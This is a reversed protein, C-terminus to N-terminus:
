GSWVFLRVAFLCALLRDTSVRGIFVGVDLSMSCWSCCLDQFGKVSLDVDVGCQHSFWYHSFHWYLLGVFLLTLMYHLCSLLKFVDM